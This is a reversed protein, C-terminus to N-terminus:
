ILDKLSERIINLLNNYRLVEQLLVTNMSEIYVIKYKENVIELNFNRPLTQLLEDASFSFFSNNFRM